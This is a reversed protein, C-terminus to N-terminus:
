REHGWHNLTIVMLCWHIPVLCAVFGNRDTSGALEGSIRRGSGQELLPSLVLEREFNVAFLCYHDPQLGVLCWCRQGFRVFQVAVKFGFAGGAALPPPICKIQRAPETRARNSWAM